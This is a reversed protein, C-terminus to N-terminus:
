RVAKKRICRAMVFLGCLSAFWADVAGGGGGGGGSPAATSGGSSTSGGGSSAANVTVTAASSTVQGAINSITVTYSGVDSAAAATRTFVADTAGPISVDGLKWQYVRNVGASTVNLSFVQGAAVTVSQPQVSITPTEVAARSSMMTVAADRLTRANNAAKPLTEAVGLVYGDFTVEPNSFYPVRSVAYSMITGTDRNSRDLFRYGFNFAGNGDPVGETERDHRCGFNHSLEHALAMYSSNWAVVSSHYALSQQAGAGELRWAIGGFNRDGGVYLVVQDAGHLIAKANVFDYVPNAAFATNDDTRGTFVYLDHTMDNTATYDPAQYSARYRWKFNTVKSNELALNSS